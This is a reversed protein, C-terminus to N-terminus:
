IKVICYKSTSLWILVVYALSTNLVMVLSIGFLIQM